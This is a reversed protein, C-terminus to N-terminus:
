SSRRGSRETERRHVCWGPPRVGTVAWGVEVVIGHIDIGARSQASRQVEGVDFHVDDIEPLFYADLNAIDAHVPALSDDFSNENVSGAIDPNNAPDWFEFDTKTMLHTANPFTPVWAGDVLRTNWGIHDPHLHTNVVLDVDEPRVGARALNGLYDLRLHDWM